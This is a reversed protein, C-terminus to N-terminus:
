GEPTVEDSATRRSDRLRRNLAEPIEVRVFEVSNPVRGKEVEKEWQAYMDEETLLVLKREVETLLLFYIDSRIKHMKGSGSRGSATRYGSTSIVAVITHDAGVADFNFFGGSTLRVPKRSCPQGYQARMWERRVWDEVMSQASTDAM